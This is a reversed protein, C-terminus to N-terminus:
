LAAYFGGPALRAEEKKGFSLIFMSVLDSCKNSRSAGIDGNFRARMQSAILRSSARSYKRRVFALRSAHARM